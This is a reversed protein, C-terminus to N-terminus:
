TLFMNKFIISLLACFLLILVNFPSCNSKKWYISTLSLESKHVIELLQNGINYTMEAKQKMKQKAGLKPCYIFESSM